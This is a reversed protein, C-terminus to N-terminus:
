TTLRPFLKVFFMSIRFGCDSISPVHHTYISSLTLIVVRDSDVFSCVTIFGAYAVFSFSKVRGFFSLCCLHLHSVDRRLGGLLAIICVRVSTTVRVRVPLRNLDPFVACGCYSISKIDNSLARHHDTNFVPLLRIKM